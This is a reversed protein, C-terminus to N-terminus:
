ERIECMGDVICLRDINYQSVRRRFSELILYIYLIYIYIPLVVAVHAYAYM